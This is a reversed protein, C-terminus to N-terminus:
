KFLYRKFKRLARARHSLRNKVKLGLEAFTKNYGKPIFIPDYGFGSAGRPRSAIRGRCEGEFVRYKNPEYYYVFVAKFKATRNKSSGLKKLVKAIRNEDDKGYRSSYIGPAGDLADIFLGSDDALSPKATIKFALEAKLLSNQLLSRGVEKISIGSFDDLNRYIIDDGLLAKIENIKNANKTALVLEFSSKLKKVM